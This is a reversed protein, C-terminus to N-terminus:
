RYSYVRYQFASWSTGPAVELQIKVEKKGASFSAPIEFEDELWALRAHRPSTYWEGVENGDVYVRATEGPAILPKPRRDTEQGAMDPPSYDMLRRLKLGQNAPLVTATFEIAGTARQGCAHLTEALSERTGNKVDAKCERAFLSQRDGEFPLDRCGQWVVKGPSYAHAQESQPDAISLQDTMLLAPTDVQYFFATGSHNAPLEGEPGHEMAFRFSRYYPVFDNLHFRYFVIHDQSDIDHVPLGNVPSSLTKDMFWVDYWGGMYYDETGTSASAFTRNDDIYFRSDGELNWRQNEGRKAPDYRVSSIVQVTGVYHGHGRTEVVTYDHHPIAPNEERWQAHFYGSSAPPAGAVTHVTVEVDPIPTDSENVLDIRASKFFPMPFFNYFGEKTAGVPLSRTEIRGLEVAGKGLAAVEEPQTATHGYRPATGAPDPVPWYGTGFFPGLPSDVSPSAEGDWYAKIRAYRLADPTMKQLRLYIATVTGPEASSWVPVTTHMPLDVKRTSPKSPRRDLPQGVAKWRALAPTIDMDLSFAKVPTGPAFNHYLIQYFLYPGGQDTSIKIGDESCIPVHTRASGYGHEESTALPPLFPTRKESYLDGYPIVDTKRKGDKRTEIALDGDFTTKRTFVNYRSSWFLLVCGPGRTDLFVYRGNDIYQGSFAGTFGDGFNGGTVDITSVAHFWVGRRLLPLRDLQTLSDVGTPLVPGQQAQGM